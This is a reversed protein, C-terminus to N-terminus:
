RVRRYRYTIERPAGDAGGIRVHFALTQPVSHDLTIGDFFMRKGEIALLPFEQPKGTKDEWGSLDRNFHRLRFVIGGEREVIQTLEMLTVQGGKTEYFHGTIQGGTPASYAEGATGGDREGRWEGVIWAMDAITARAPAQGAARSRTLPAPNAQAIATGILLALASM